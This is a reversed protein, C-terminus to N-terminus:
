HTLHRNNQTVDVFLQVNSCQLKALYHPLMNLALHCVKCGSRKCNMQSHLLSLIILIPWLKGFNAYFTQTPTKKLWPTPTKILDNGTATLSRQPNCRVTCRVVRFIYWLYFAIVPSYYIMCRIDNDTYWQQLVAFLCIIAIYLTLWFDFVRSVLCKDM